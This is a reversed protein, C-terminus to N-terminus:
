NDLEIRPIEESTLWFCIKQPNKREVKESDRIFEDRIREDQKQQQDFKVLSNCLPQMPISIQKNEKDVQIPSYYKIRYERGAFGVACVASTKQEIDADYNHFLSGWTSNAYRLDCEEILKEQSIPTAFVWEDDNKCWRGPLYGVKYQYFNALYSTDWTTSFLTENNADKCCIFAYDLNNSSFFDLELAADASKSFFILDHGTFSYIWERSNYISQAIDLAQNIHPADKFVRLMANYIAVGSVVFEGEAIYKKANIIDGCAKYLTNSALTAVVPLIYKNLSDTIVPNVEGYIDSESNYLKAVESIGYSIVAITAWSVSEHKMNALVDVVKKVREAIEITNKLKSQM